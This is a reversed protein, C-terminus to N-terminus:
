FKDRVAFVETAQMLDYETEFCASPCKLFHEEDQLSNFCETGRSVMVHAFGAEQFLRCCDEESKGANGHFVAMGQLCLLKIMEHFLNDEISQLYILHFSEQQVRVTELSGHVNFYWPFRQEVEFFHPEEEILSYVSVDSLCSFYSLLEEEPEVLLIRLKHESNGFRHRQRLLFPEPWHVRVKDIEKQMQM